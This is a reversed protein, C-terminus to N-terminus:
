SFSRKAHLGRGEEVQVLVTRAVDADVAFQSLGIQFVYGPSRRRVEIREGPFVGMAILKQTHRGGEKEHVVGVVRAPQGLPLDALTLPGVWELRHDGRVRKRRCRMRRVWGLLRSEPVNDYGCAPCRILSCNGVLPCGNCSRAADEVEFDAGCMSCNM